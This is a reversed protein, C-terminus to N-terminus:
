YKDRQLVNFSPCALLAAAGPLCLAAHTAAPAKEAQDTSKAFM